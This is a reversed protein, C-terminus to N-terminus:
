SGIIRMFDSFSKAIESIAGERNPEPSEEHDWFVVKPVKDTKNKYKLCFLNGGADEAFPFTLDSIRDKVWELTKIVNYKDKLNFSIFKDIIIGRIPRSHQPSAGNYKLVIDKLEKPLEVKWIKEVKEIDSLSVKREPWKWIIVEDIFSVSEKLFDLYNNM